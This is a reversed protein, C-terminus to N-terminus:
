KDLALSSDVQSGMLSLKTVINKDLYHRPSRSYKMILNKVSALKKAISSMSQGVVHVYTRTRCFSDTNCTEIAQPSSMGTDYFGIGFM